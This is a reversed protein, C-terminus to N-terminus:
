HKRVFISAFLVAMIFEFSSLWPLSSNDQTDPTTDDEFVPKDTNTTPAKVQVSITSSHSTQAGESYITLTVDCMREQHSSSAEVRLEFMSGVGGNVGTPEVVQNELTELKNVTLHPCNRISAEASSIADNANGENEVLLNVAVSSGAFLEDTPENLTPKLKLIRPFKMAGDIEETRVDTSGATQRARVVIDMSTDAGFSRIEEESKGTITVEFTENTNAPISVSEPGEIEIALDDDFEYEIELNVTTSQQNDIFFEISDQLDWDDELNLVYTTDMDTEWGFEWSGGPFQAQIPILLPLLFLISLLVKQSM